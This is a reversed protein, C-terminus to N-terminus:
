DNKLSCHIQGRIRCAVLWWFFPVKTNAGRIGAKHSNIRRVHLAVCLDM